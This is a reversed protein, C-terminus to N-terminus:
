VSFVTALRLSGMTFKIGAPAPWNCRRGMSVGCGHQRTCAGARADALVVTGNLVVLNLSTTDVSSNVVLTGSGSKDAGVDQVTRMLRATETVTSNGVVSVTSTRHHIYFGGALRSPTPLSLTGSSSSIGHRGAPLAWGADHHDCHATAASRDYRGGYSNAGPAV